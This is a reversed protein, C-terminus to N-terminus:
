DPEARAVLPTIPRFMDLVFRSMYGIPNYFVSITKVPIEAMPRAAAIRRREDTQPRIIGQNERIRDM